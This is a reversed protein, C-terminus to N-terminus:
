AEKRMRSVGVPLTRGSRIGLTREREFLVALPVVLADIRHLEGLSERVSAM